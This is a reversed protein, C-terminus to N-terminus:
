GKRFGTPMIDEGTIECSIEDIYQQLSTRVFETLLWNQRSRLYKDFQQPNYRVLESLWHMIAYNITISGRDVLYRNAPLCKKIYWLRTPAYIYQIDKRVRKHYKNLETIRDALNNHIDWRFRNTERRIVMKDTYTPDQRYATPLYKLTQHNAYRGTIEFQVWAQDDNEKKVFLVNEIPIFLETPNNDSLCHARHVCLNNYMLDIIRYTQKVTSEGLQRSLEALVGGGQFIVSANKISSASISENTRTIGHHKLNEDPVGKVRLLAKAANMFCYYSTLPKANIPLLQSAEFFYRAQQWYFLADVAEKIGCRKLWLEVFEWSSDTLVTKSDYHAETIPKMLALNKSNITIIKALLRDEQWLIMDATTKSM